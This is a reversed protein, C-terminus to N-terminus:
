PPRRDANSRLLAVSYLDGLVWERAEVGLDTGALMPGLRRTLDSFLLRAIPNLARRPLSAPEGDPLFKDFVSVRGGLALVREAEVLVAEPDPVVALVLHLCVADFTDAEFELDTADGVRADVDLDLRGARVTTRRVNEAVVDVATVSVGEPLHELDLGTGCGALLVREGPELDLSEIARRRGPEFPSALRDYVPAYLRWRGRRWRDAPNM